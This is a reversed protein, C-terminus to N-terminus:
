GVQQGFKIFVSTAFCFFGTLRWWGNRPICSQGYSKARRLHDEVVLAADPILSDSPTEKM